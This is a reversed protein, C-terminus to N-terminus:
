PSLEMFAVKRFLFPLRRRLRDVPTDILCHEVRIPGDAAPRLRFKQLLGPEAFWHGGPRRKDPGVVFVAGELDEPWHGEVVDLRHEREGQGWFLNTTITAM